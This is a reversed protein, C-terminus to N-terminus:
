SPYTLCFQMYYYKLSFMDVSQFILCSLYSPPPPSFFFFPLSSFLHSSLFISPSPCTFSFQINSIFSTSVLFSLVQFPFTSVSTFTEPSPYTSFTTFTISPHLHLGLLLLYLIFLVTLFPHFFNNSLCFSMLLISHLHDRAPYSPLPPLYILLSPSSSTNCVNAYSCRNCSASLYTVTAKM